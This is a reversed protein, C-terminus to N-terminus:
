VSDKPDVKTNDPKLNPAAYANRYNTAYMSMSATARAIGKSTADFNVSNSASIGLTGGVSFADQNAALFVFTWGYESECETILEKIQAARFEQSSNEAGDTLITVIVGGTLEGASRQEKLRAITKGIADYLATSGRPIYNDNSFVVAEELAVRDQLLEYQNDFLVVTLNAKGEVKRQENIFANFGGIADTRLSEMSGSRDIIAVVEITTEPAAKINTM